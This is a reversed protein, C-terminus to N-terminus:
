CRKRWVSTLVGRRKKDEEEYCLLPSLAPSLYLLSVSVTPDLAPVAMLTIELNICMCAGNPMPMMVLSITPSPQLRLSPPNNSPSPAPSKPTAM